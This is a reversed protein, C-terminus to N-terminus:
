RRNTWSVCNLIGGKRALKTCEIPVVPVTPILRQLVEVAHGDEECGYEPVLILNKLRLFNVYNGVASDVEDVQDFDPDLFYPIEHIRLNHDELVKRVRQGYIPDVKAYDNMVVTTEDIFRVVGDSHGICDDPETPIIICDRVEFWDRLQEVLKEKQITENERFIKDTLIVKDTTSVVNGGDLIIDSCIRDKLFPLNDCVGDETILHEYGNVLYDPWYRFKLFILKKSKADAVNEQRIQIPMFDRVWIDRTGQVLEFVVDHTLLTGSLQRWLGPYRDPLLNSFYVFNTEWDPVM